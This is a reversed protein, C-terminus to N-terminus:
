TVEVKYSQYTVKNNTKNLSLNMVLGKEGKLSLPLDFPGHPRPPVQPLWQSECLGKERGFIRHKTGSM